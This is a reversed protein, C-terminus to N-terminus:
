ELSSGRNLLHSFQNRLEQAHIRIDRLKGGTLQSVDEPEQKGFLGESDRPGGNADSVNSRKTEEAVEARSPNTAEM